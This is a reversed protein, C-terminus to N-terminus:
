NKITGGLERFITNYIFHLLLQKIVSMDFGSRLKSPQCSSDTRSFCVGGSLGLRFGLHCRLLSNVQEENILDTIFRSLM